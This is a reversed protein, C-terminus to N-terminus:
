VKINFSDLCNLVIAISYFWSLVITVIILVTFHLKKCQTLSRTSVIIPYTKHRTLLLIMRFTVPELGSIQGISKYAGNAM